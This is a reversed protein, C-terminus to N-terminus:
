EFVYTITKPRGDRMVSLSVTKQERLLAYAGLMGDPTSLNVGNLTRLVDGDRMGLKHLTSTAAVGALKVGANREGGGGVQPQFKTGRVVGAADAMGRTIIDRTVRYRDPGLETIGAALEAENFLPAKKSRKAPEAAPAPTAVAVAPPPTTTLYLPLRCAAAGADRVYAHTPALLLLKVGDVDTGMLVQKAPTAGKRIVAFSRAPDEHMIIAMLRLDNKCDTLPTQVPESSGQEEGEDVAPDMELPRDLWPVSGVTSDFINRSLVSRSIEETSLRPASTAVSAQKSKKPAADDPQLPTADLYALGQTVFVGSVLVSGVSSLLPVPKVKALKTPWKM